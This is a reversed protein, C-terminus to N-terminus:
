VRQELVIWLRRFSAKSNKSGGFSTFVRLIEGALVNREDVENISIKWNTAVTDPYYRKKHSEPLDEKLADPRCTDFLRIYRGVSIRRTRIYACAQEIALPLYISGGICDYLLDRNRGNRSVLKQCGKLSM